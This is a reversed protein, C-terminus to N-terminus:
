GGAEGKWDCRRCHVQTGAKSKKEFLTPAKCQSCPGATPSDWTVFDCDPYHSCGFFVKGSKSRREVIHGTCGERPCAHETKLPLLGKCKPYNICGLFKGFRGSRVLMKGGCLPCPTDSEVPPANEEIGESYRCKPFGTCAIFRGRRGFHYVLPSGCQPCDRGVPELTEKKLDGKAKDAAALATSFPGYFDGMVKRWEDGKEEIRDLEEEMRATFEVSFIQPFLDVLIRNVTKGLPTPHLVKERREAYTRDFLTSIIAAYTSPRGIGKEDLEKVLSAESYHPPPQTFRQKPILDLLALPMGEVLGPPLATDPPEGSKDAEDTKDDSVKLDAMVQLFGPLILVQGTSKFLAGESGHIRVTTQDYEADKMQTAVFRRWILDYLKMEDGGLLGKLEQPSLRVDTPRIAEHADQVAGKKNRYVRPERSVAPTGFHSAIYDRAAAIAESSVRMSDTRMYTILGVAGRSGLEVGEYLRQAVAMTRKVSFGLRRGADQQLTSTTYPPYPARKRRVKKVSEVSYTQPKLRDVVSKAAGEEGIEVKKGDFESLRALFPVGGGGKFRGDITWFETPVFAEIEAERECLIRLAVSQVRGASLGGTVTKWLIPSVQYGVLRDMVRRAQQADVKQMDIAGPHNIAEEVAHRTIEHFQVRGFDSLPRGILESLHWAIAEGERDPDTALLIQKAERAAKRLTGVIKARDPLEVYKPEFGRAIDVGIEREPLDRVHGGSALVTYGSGLYRTLTRAKTPSEVIVLAGDRTAAPRRSPPTSTSAPGASNRSRGSTTRSAKSKPSGAPSL